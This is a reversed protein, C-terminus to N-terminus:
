KDALRKLIAMMEEDSDFMDRLKQAAKEQKTLARQKASEERHFREQYEKETEERKLVFSLDFAGDYGYHSKKVVIEGGPHMEKVDDFTSKVNALMEDITCEEYIDFLVSDVELHEVIEEVIKKTM